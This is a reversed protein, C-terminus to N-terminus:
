IDNHTAPCWRRVPQPVRFRDLLAQLHSAGLKTMAGQRQNYLTKVSVSQRQALVQMSVMQLSLWLVRSERGSLAPAGTTMLTDDGDARGPSANQEPPTLAQCLTALPLRDDLVRVQQRVGVQGLVRYITEPALASLVVLRVTVTPPVDPGGLQLLLSLAARPDSPLRVVLTDLRFMEEPATLGCLLLSSLSALGSAGKVRLTLGGGPTVGELANVLGMRGYSCSDVVAVRWSLVEPTQLCPSGRRALDGPRRTNRNDSM